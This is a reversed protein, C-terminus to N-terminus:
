FMKSGTKLMAPLGADKLVTLITDMFALDTGPSILMATPHPHCYLIM